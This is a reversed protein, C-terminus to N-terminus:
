PQDYGFGFKILKNKKNFIFEARYIIVYEFYITVTELGNKGKSKKLFKNGNRKALNELLFDKDIGLRIGNETTFDDFNSKYFKTNKTQLNQMYGVEFYTFTNSNSGLAHYLKIYKNGKTNKFYIYGPIGESLKGHLDGFVEWSGDSNWLTITNNITSDLIFNPENTIISDKQNIGNSPMKEELTNKSVNKDSSCQCSILIFIVLLSYIINYNFKNVMAEDDVQTQTMPM